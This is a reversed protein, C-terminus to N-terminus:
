LEPTRLLIEETCNSGGLWAEFWLAREKANISYELKAGLALYASLDKPLRGYDVM